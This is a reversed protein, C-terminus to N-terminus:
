WPLGKFRRLVQKNEYETNTRGAAKDLCLDLVGGANDGIM